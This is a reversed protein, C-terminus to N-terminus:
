KNLHLIAQLHFVQKGEPVFMILTKNMTIKIKLLMTNITVVWKCIKFCNAWQHAHCLHAYVIKYRM